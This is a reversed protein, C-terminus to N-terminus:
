HLVRKNQHRLAQHKEHYVLLHRCKLAFRVKQLREECVECRLFQRNAGRAKAGHHQIAWLGERRLQLAIAVMSAVGKNQCWKPPWCTNKLECFADKYM